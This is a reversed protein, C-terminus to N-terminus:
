IIIPQHIKVTADSFPAWSGSLAKVDSVSAGKSLERRASVIQCNSKPILIHREMVKEEKKSGELSYALEIFSM